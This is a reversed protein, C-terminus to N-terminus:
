PPAVAGVIVLISWIAALPMRKRLLQDIGAQVGLRATKKSPLNGNRVFM